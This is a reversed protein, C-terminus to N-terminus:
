TKVRKSKHEAAQFLQALNIQMHGVDQVAKVTLAFSEVDMFLLTRSNTGAVCQLRECAHLFARLTDGHSLTPGVRLAASPLLHGVYESPHSGRLNRVPFPFRRADGLVVAQRVQTHPTFGEVIQETVVSSSAATTNKVTKIKALTYTESLGAYPLRLTLAWSNSEEHRPRSIVGPRLPADPLGDLNEPPASWRVLAPVTCDSEEMIDPVAASIGVCELMSACTRALELEPPPDAGSPLVMDWTRYATDRARLLWRNALCYVHRRAQSGQHAAHVVHLFHQLQGVDLLHMYPIVLPVDSRSASFLQGIERSGSGVAVTTCIGREGTKAAAHRKRRKSGAACWTWRALYDESIGVAFQPPLLVDVPGEILSHGAAKHAARVAEGCQSQHTTGRLPSLSVHVHIGASLFSESATWPVPPGGIGRHLWETYAAEASPPDIPEGSPSFPCYYCDSCADASGCRCEHSYGVRGFLRQTKLGICVGTSARALSKTVLTSWELSHCATLHMAEHPSLAPHRLILRSAATLQRSSLEELETRALIGPTVRIDYIHHLDLRPLTTCKGLASATCTTLYITTSM